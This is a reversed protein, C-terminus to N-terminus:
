VSGEPEDPKTFGLCASKGKVVSLGAGGLRKRRVTELARRPGLGLCGASPDQILISGAIRPLFGQAGRGNGIIQPLHKQRNLKFLASRRGRPMKM